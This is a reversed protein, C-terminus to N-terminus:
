FDGFIAGIDLCMEGFSRLSFAKIKSEARRGSRLLIKTGEEVIISLVKTDFM